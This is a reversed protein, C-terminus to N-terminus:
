KKRGATNLAVADRVLEKLAPADIKDGQHFDIARSAKADQSANFLKHPDNLSAGKFFNLKVHDKFVGAAVVNGKHSWVPTEWKWEEVIESDADHILQRAQAILEGRWDGLEDIRHTIQEAPTM